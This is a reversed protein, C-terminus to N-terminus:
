PFPTLPLVSGAQGKRERKVVSMRHDAPLGGRAAGKDVLALALRVEIATLLCVITPQRWGM